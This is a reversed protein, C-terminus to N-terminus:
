WFRTRRVVLSLHVGRLPGCRVVYDLRAGDPVGPPISVTTSLEGPLVGAGGCAPCAFWGGGGTGRCWSCLRNVPVQLALEGGRAAEADSLLLEATLAEGFGVAPAPPPSSRVTGQKERKRGRRARDYAARRAPDGLVERAEQVEAFCSGDAASDADPHVQRVRRRYARRIEGPSAEPSVGLIAYYDKEGDM